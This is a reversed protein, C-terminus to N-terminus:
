SFFFGRISVALLLLFVIVLSWGYMKLEKQFEELGLFLLTLGLFFMMFPSYKFNQTILGYVIFLLTVISLVRRLIKLM